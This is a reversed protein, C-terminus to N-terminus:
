LMIEELINKCKQKLERYRAHDQQTYYAYIDVLELFLEYHKNKIKRDAVMDECKGIHVFNNCAKGNCRDCDPENEWEGLRPLYSLLLDRFSITGMDRNHFAPIEDDDKNELFNCEKWYIDADLESCIEMIRKKM